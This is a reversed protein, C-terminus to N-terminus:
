STGTRPTAIRPTALIARLEHAARAYSFFRAGIECYDVMQRRHEENLLPRRVGDLVNDTLFGEMLVVQFGCPEIDTGFIGHRNCLVPNKYYIAELFADGIGEHSSPCIVSDSQRHADWATYQKHGQPATGQKGDIECDLPPHTM